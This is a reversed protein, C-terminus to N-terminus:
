MGQLIAYAQHLLKKAKAIRRDMERLAHSNIDLTKRHRLVTNRSVEAAEATKRVSMGAFLCKDLKLKRKADLTNM